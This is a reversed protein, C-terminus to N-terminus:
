AARTRRTGIAGVATGLMCMPAARCWTALRVSCLRLNLPSAQAMRRSWTGAGAWYHSVEGRQLVDLGYVMPVWENRRRRFVSVFDIMSLKCM